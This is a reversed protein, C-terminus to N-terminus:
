CGVCSMRGLNPWVDTARLEDQWLGTARDRPSRHAKTRHHMEGAHQVSGHPRADKAAGPPDAGKAHGSGLTGGLRVPLGANDRSLAAQPADDRDPAGSQPLHEVAGCGQRQPGRRGKQEWGARVLHFVETLEPVRGSWSWCVRQRRGVGATWASPRSPRRPGGAMRQKARM